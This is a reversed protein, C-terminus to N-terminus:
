AALAAIPAMFPNADSFMEYQLRLPHMKQMWDAMPANVLNKIIPQAYTRYLALNAESIRAAKAFRRDDADDNGGMARIDDLTRAECSMVWEGSVLDPNATGPEAEHFVAE